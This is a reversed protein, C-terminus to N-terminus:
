SLVLQNNNIIGVVHGKMEQGIFASNKSKSLINSQEFLWNGDPVFMTFDASQGVEFSKSTIGFVEKSKTFKNVIIDIPLVNNLASFASELGVTGYKALNFELYKHEIDVPHHDSTIMDITHDLIGDILAKCDTETRLPPTVKYNTDFESLLHDTLVLHHVSVSCTM